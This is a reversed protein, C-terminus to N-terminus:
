KIRECRRSTITGYGYRICAKEAPTHDRHARTRKQNFRLRARVKQYLANEQSETGMRPDPAWPCVENSFAGATKIFPM